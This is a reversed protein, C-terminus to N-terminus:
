HICIKLKESLNLECYEKYIVLHRRNIKKFTSNSSTPFLKSAEEDSKVMIFTFPLWNKKVFLFFLM